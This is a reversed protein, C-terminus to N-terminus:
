SVQWLLQCGRKIYTRYLIIIINLLIDIVLSKGHYSIQSVLYLNDLILLHALAPPTPISNYAEMIIRKALFGAEHINVVVPCYVSGGSYPINIFAYQLSILLQWSQLVSNLRNNKNGEVFNSNDYKACFSSSKWSCISMYM